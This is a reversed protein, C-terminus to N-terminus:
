KRPEPAGPVASQLERQVERELDEQSEYRKLLLRPDAQKKLEAFVEPILMQTKKEIVEKELKARVEDLKVAKNPPIRELLKIVVYGEKTGIIPSVEGPELSFAVKELEPSGTTYRGFPDIMGGVRALQASAQSRAARDFAKEDKRIEDWMKLAIHHEEKPWLIMQVKVKEGYYAEFGKLIDEEEVRVRDRCLKHMLLKPRIVDEKWEYLTKGRAKLIQNVFTKLDVKLSALTEALDAEIEAPSVTIGQRQCHYEIIRKNVLPELREAGLRAILYEGLEERTIPVTGYIYAVVNRTYEPSPPPAPPPSPPPEQVAAAPPTATAQSLAGNRGLFFAGTGVGVILTGLTLKRWGLLGRWKTRNHM